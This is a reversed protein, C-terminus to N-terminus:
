NKGGFRGRIEIEAGDEQAKKIDQLGQNIDATSNRSILPIEFGPVLEVPTTTVKELIPFYESIVDFAFVIQTKM